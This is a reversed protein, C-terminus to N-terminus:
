QSQEAMVAAIDPLPFSHECLHRAVIPGVTQHLVEPTPTANIRRARGARFLDSRFMATIQVEQGWPSVDGPLKFSGPSTEGHAVNHMMACMNGVYFSGPRQEFTEMTSDGFSVQLTRTGFLTLGAHLLSAGGDTHWGDERAAVKMIQLSVYAFANEALDEEVFQRANCTELPLHIRQIEARIRAQLQQLWEHACRRLARAFNAIRESGTPGVPDSNLSKCKPPAQSVWGIFERKLRKAGEARSVCANPRFNNEICEQVMQLWIPDQQLYDLVEEDLYGSCISGPGHKAARYAVTVGLSPALLFPHRAAAKASPRESPDWRMAQEVFDAMRQPFNLQQVAPPCSEDVAHLFNIESPRPRLSQLFELAGGHPIGIFSKIKELYDNRSPSQVDPRILPRRLELEAAVVGLSWMDLDCRFKLNGLLLDPPRYEITGVTLMGEEFKRRRLRLAPDALVANGPDGLVVKFICGRPCICGLFVAGTSEPKTASADAIWQGWATAAFDEPRMLINHPKLDAHVIGKDHMYTLAACVKRLVHRMGAIELRSKQLFQHLDLEFREFVVGLWPENLGDEVNKFPPHLITVDIVRLIDPHGQVAVCRLLESQLVARACWPRTKVAVQQQTACVRGPYVKGYMSSGLPKEWSVDVASPPTAHTPKYHLEEFQMLLLFGHSLVPAAPAVETATAAAASGSVDWATAAATPAPTRPIAAIPAPPKPPPAGSTWGPPLDRATTRPKKTDPEVDIPRPAGLMKFNDPDRKSAFEKIRHATKYCVAKPWVVDVRAPAVEELSLAVKKTGTSGQGEQVVDRLCQKARRLGPGAKLYFAWRSYKCNNDTRKTCDARRGSM